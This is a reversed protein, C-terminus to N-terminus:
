KKKIENMRLLTEIMFKETVDLIECDNVRFEYCKPGTQIISTENGAIVKVFAYRGLSDCSVNPDRVVDVGIAGFFQAFNALAIVGDGECNFENTDNYVLKSALIVEGEFPVKDLQRPDKRIYLNYNAIQKGNTYLPFTNHYFILGGPDKVVNFSIGSYNFNNIFYIFAGILVLLLVFIGLGILFKKLTENEKKIQDKREIAIEEKGCSKVIKEKGNKEVEFSECVKEKKKSDEKKEKPKKM